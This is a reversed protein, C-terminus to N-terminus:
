GYYTNLNKHLRIYGSFEECILKLENPNGYDMNLKKMELSEDKLRLDNWACFESLYDDFNEYIINIGIRGHDDIVLSAVKGNTGISCDVLLGTIIDENPINYYDTFLTWQKIPGFNLDIYVISGFADAWESIHKQTIQSELEKPIIRENISSINLLTNSSSRLCCVYDKTICLFKRKIENYVECESKSDCDECVDFTVIFLSEYTFWKFGGGLKKKCILCSWRLPKKEISYETRDILHKVFLEKINKDNFCRLCLDITSNSCGLLQYFPITINSCVNCCYQEEPKAFDETDFDYKDIIDWM